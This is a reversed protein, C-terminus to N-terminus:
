AHSPRESPRDTTTFHRAIASRLFATSARLNAMGEEVTDGAGDEISIWGAYGATALAVLIRDYDNLGEGIVGHTIYEAYGHRADRDLARLDDLTGGALYRDSAQMTALRPLVMDLLEYPDEGAVIANSPDYQAGLWPSDIANLITLYRRHSQAFEPYEWLGDKYHNELCMVVGADAAHPELESLADIVWGMAQDEQLGPRNQGSLVRCFRGGLEVTVRFMDRTRDMEARRAREDPQTFDPSHCLMPLALGQDAARRRVTALHDSDVRDLFAPYLEAGDLGLQAALDLWGFVTMRRAILADFFGKPFAALQPVTM